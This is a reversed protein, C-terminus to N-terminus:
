SQLQKRFSTTTNFEVVQVQLNICVQEVVMQESSLIEATLNSAHMSICKGTGAKLPLQECFASM